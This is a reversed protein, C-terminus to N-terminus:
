RKELTDVRERLKDIARTLKEYGESTTEALKGVSDAISHFSEMSTRNQVQLHEIFAATTRMNSQVLKHMDGRMESFQATLFKIGFRILISVLSLFALAIVGLAGYQALADTEM